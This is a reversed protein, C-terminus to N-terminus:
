FLCKDPYFLACLSCNPLLKSVSLLNFKFGPVYLANHLTLQSNLPTKGIISVQKLAGDPLTIHIPSSLIKHPTFLNFDNTKQDSAGIDIVWPVSDSNRVANCASSHPSISVTGAFHDYSGMAEPKQDVPKGKMLKMM